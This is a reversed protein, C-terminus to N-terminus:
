SLIKKEQGTSVEPYVTTVDTFCLFSSPFSQKRQLFKRTGDDDSSAGKQNDITLAHKWPSRRKSMKGYTWLGYDDAKRGRIMWGCHTKHSKSASAGTVINFIPRACLTSTGRHHVEKFAEAGFVRGLITYSVHFGVLM